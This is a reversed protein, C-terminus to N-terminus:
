AVAVHGRRVHCMPPRDPFSVTSDFPVVGVDSRAFQALGGGTPSVGARSLVTSLITASMRGLAATDQNGHVRRGLDVQALADLGYRTYTDILLGAEVGYGAAFPLHELAERRAAYEGALPQVVGALAPFFANLLPRALLETVRGGGTPSGHLARDYFGKVLMVAPDTLLPGLLGPVYAPDFDVLDADVYAVLDGTTVALAKWLVEGKGPRSGYGPLVEDRHWVTAGAAAAVEATRDTSGSDMVVLEDVLGTRQGLALIATVIAGVTPEEDLAPLVVSVTTGGKAAALRDVDWDGAASTRRGFWGYAREDM